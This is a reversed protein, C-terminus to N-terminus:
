TVGGGNARLAAETVWKEPEITQWAKAQVIDTLREAPMAALQGFTHVGAENLRRAFVNGIGSIDQLRDESVSVTATGNAAIVAVDGGTPLQARLERNEAKLVNILATDSKVANLEAELTQAFRHAEDLEARLTATEATLLNDSSGGLAAIEKELTEARVQQDLLQDTVNQLQVDAAVLRNNSDLLENEALELRSRLESNELNVASGRENQATAAALTGRLREIERMAEANQVRLTEVEGLDESAMQMQAGITAMEAEAAALKDRMTQKELGLVDVKEQTVELHERLAKMDKTDNELLKCKTDLERIQVEYNTLKGRLLENAQETAAMQRLKAESTGLEAELNSVQKRKIALESDLTANATKLSTVQEAVANREKEVAVQATVAHDKERQLETFDAEVATMTRHYRRNDMIWQIIWSLIFGGLAGVLLSFFDIQSM